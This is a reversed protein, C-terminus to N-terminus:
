VKNQKMNIFVFNLCNSLMIYQIYFIFVQLYLIHPITLLIAITSFVLKNLRRFAHAVLVIMGGTNWKIGM